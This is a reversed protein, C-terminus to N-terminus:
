VVGLIVPYSQVKTISPKNYTGDSYQWCHAGSGSASSTTGDNCEAGVRHRDTQKQLGSVALMSTLVVAALFRNM